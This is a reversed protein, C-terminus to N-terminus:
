VELRPEGARVWGRGEQACMVEEGSCSGREVCMGGRAPAGGVQAGSRSVRGGPEAGAGVRATGPRDGGRGWSSTYHSVVLRLCARHLGAGGRGRIPRPM